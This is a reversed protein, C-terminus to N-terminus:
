KIKKKEKKECLKIYIKQKTKNREENKDHM